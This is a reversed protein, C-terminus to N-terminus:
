DEDPCLTWGMREFCERVRDSVEGENGSCYFDMYDEGTNYNTNRIYAIIGAASRWSCSWITSDTGKLKEIILEDEPLISFSKWETNCLASYFEVAQNRKELYAIVVSDNVMEEGLDLKIDM